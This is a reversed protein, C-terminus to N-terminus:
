YLKQFSLNIPYHLSGCEGHVRGLDNDYFLGERGTERPPCCFVPDYIAGGDGSCDHYVSMTTIPSGVRSDAYDNYHPGSMKWNLFIGFGTAGYWVDNFFGGSM